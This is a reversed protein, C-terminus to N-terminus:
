IAQHFLIWVHHKGFLDVKVWLLFVCSLNNFIVYSNCSVFTNRSALIVETGTLKSFNLRIRWALPKFSRFCFIVTSISIMLTFSIKQAMRFTNALHLSTYIRVLRPTTLCLVLLIFYAVFVSSWKVLKNVMAYQYYNQDHFIM